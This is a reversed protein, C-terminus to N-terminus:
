EKQDCDMYGSQTELSMELPIILNSIGMSSGSGNAMVEDSSPCDEVFGSVIESGRSEMSGGRSSSMKSGGVYGNCLGGFM